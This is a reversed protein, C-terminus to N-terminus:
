YRTWTSWMSPGEWSVGQTCTSPVTSLPVGSLFHRQSALLLYLFSDTISFLCLWDNQWCCLPGRQTKKLASSLCLLQLDFSLRGVGLEPAHHGPSGGVGFLFPCGVGAVLDRRGSEWRLLMQCAKCSATDEFSFMQFDHGNATANEPYINSSALSSFEM